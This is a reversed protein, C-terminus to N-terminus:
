RDSRGACFSHVPSVMESQTSKSITGPGQNPSLSSQMSGLASVYSCSTPPQAVARRHHRIQRGAPLWVGEGAFFVDM